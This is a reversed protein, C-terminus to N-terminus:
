SLSAAFAQLREAANETIPQGHGCCIVQVNKLQALRRISDKAVDMHPTAMTPPLGLKGGRSNFADAAILIGREPEYLAIQGATHGPVHIVQFGELLSEKDLVLEDVQDIPRYRLLLKGLADALPTYVKGLLSASMVRPTKGTVVDREVAHCIVRAGTAAQVQRCGGAHDIDGHTIIIRDLHKQGFGALFSLIAGASSPMGTDILTLGGDPREWVYANVLGSEMGDVLHLGPVIEM